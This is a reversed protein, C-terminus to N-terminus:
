FIGLQITKLSPWEGETVSLGGQDTIKNDRLHMNQLKKWPRKSLTTM